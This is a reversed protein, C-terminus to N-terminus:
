SGIEDPLGGKEFQFHAIETVPFVGIFVTFFHGGM